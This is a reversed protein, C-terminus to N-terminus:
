APVRGQAPPLTALGIVEVTDPALSKLVDFSLRHWTVNRDVHFVLKYGAAAASAIWDVFLRIASSNALKLRRLDVEVAASKTAAVRAHIGRFHKSLEAQASDSNLTGSLELKSDSLMQLELLEITIPTVM